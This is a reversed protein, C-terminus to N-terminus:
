KALKFVWVSGGQNIGKVKEAVDGGWLPVAGGWSAVIAVYQEGDMEYTIPQGVVGLYAAGKKYTVPEKWIDMGWENSPVYFLGSHQSAGDDNIRNDRIIM